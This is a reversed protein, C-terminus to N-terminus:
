NKKKVFAVVTGSAAIGVGVIGINVIAAGTQPLNNNGGGPRSTTGGGSGGSTSPVTTTPCDCDIPCDCPLCDEPITSPGTPAISPPLTEGPPPTTSPPFPPMIGSGPPRSPPRPSPTIPMTPETTPETSEPHTPPITTPETPQETPSTTESEDPPRNFQIRRYVVSHSLRSDLWDVGDGLTRIQLYYDIDYSLPLPRLDFSFWNWIGESEVMAERGVEVTLVEDTISNRIYIRYGSAPTLELWEIRGWRGSNDVYTSYMVNISTPALHQWPGSEGAEYRAILEEFDLTNASLLASANEFSLTPPNTNTPGSLIIQLSQAFLEWFIANLEEADPNLVSEAWLDNARFRVVDNEAVLEFWEEVQDITWDGIFWVIGGIIIYNPTDNDSGDILQEFRFSLSDFRVVIEEVSDLVVEFDLDNNPVFSGNEIATVTEMDAVTARYEAILDTLLAQNASAVSTSMEEIGASSIGEGEYLELAQLYWGEAIKHSMELLRGHYRWLADQLEIIYFLGIEVFQDLQNYADTFSIMEAHVQTSLHGLPDSFNEWYSRRIEELLDVLPGEELENIILFVRSSLRSLEVQLPSIIASFENWFQNVEEEIWDYFNFGELASEFQDIYFLGIEIFQDLQNYADTFSIMEAHVQTSLHGLPDSFNEWYSRRIEELLDVLPGEELENIILFVRSSLRSLEVQLPSIVASFENWFQNIEEETWDYFNFGDDLVGVEETLETLLDMKELNADGEEAEVEEADHLMEYEISPGKSIYENAVALVTPLTTQLILLVVLLFPVIKKLM